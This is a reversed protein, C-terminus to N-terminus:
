KGDIIRQLDQMSRERIQRREEESLVGQLESSWGERPALVRLIKFAAGPQVDIRGDGRITVPVLVDSGNQQLRHTERQELRYSYTGAKSMTVSVTHFRKTQDVAFTIPDTGSLYLVAEGETVLPIDAEYSVFFKVTEDKADAGFKVAGGGPFTIEDIPRNSRLAYGLTAVLVVAVVIWMFRPIKSQDSM